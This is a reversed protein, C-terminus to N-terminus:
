LETSLHGFEAKFFRTLLLFLECLEKLQDTMLHGAATSQRLIVDDLRHLYALLARPCKIIEPHDTAFQNLIPNVTKGVLSSNTEPM